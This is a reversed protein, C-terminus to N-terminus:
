KILIQLLIKLKCQNLAASIIIQQRNKNSTHRHSYRLLIHSPKYRHNALSNSPLPCMVLNGEPLNILLFMPLLFADSPPSYFPMQLIVTNAPHRKILELNDREFSRQKNLTIYFLHVTVM